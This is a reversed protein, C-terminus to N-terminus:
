KQLRLRRTLPLPKPTPAQIDTDFLRLPTNGAQDELRPNVRLRYSSDVDWAELPTFVWQREDKSVEIRGDLQQYNRFVRLHRHLLAHDLPDPFTVSLPSLTAIKTESIKWFEPNPRDHDEETTRFEKVYEDQLPIGGASRLATTFRIRYRKGPELVPGFEERLNVGKKIRGPHIWLTLRMAKDDWLEVRRWPDHIPEGSEQEICIAEFVHRGERMPASFHVYFKLVNAPLEAGSPFVKVVSPATPFHPEALRFQRRVEEGSPLTAIAEYDIGPRLPFRPKLALQAEKLSYRAYIRRGANNGKEPRIRIWLLKGASVPLSAAARLGDRQADSLALTVSVEGGDKIVVSLGDARSKPVWPSCAVGAIALSFALAQLLPPGHAVVRGPKRCNWSKL